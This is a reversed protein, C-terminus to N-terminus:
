QKKEKKPKLTIFQFQKDIDRQLWITVILLNKIEGKINGEVRYFIGYQNQSDEIAEKTEILELIAQKLSEPNNETFGGQALFKSKDDQQRPILLYQTLKADPIIVDPPLKM